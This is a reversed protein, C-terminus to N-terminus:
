VDVNQPFILKQGDESGGVHRLVDTPLGHCCLAAGALSIFVPESQLSPPLWLHLESFIHQSKDVCPHQKLVSLIPADNKLYVNEEVWYLPVSQAQTCVIVNCNPSMLTILSSQPIRFLVM